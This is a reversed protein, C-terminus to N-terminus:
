EEKKRESLVLVYVVAGAGGVSMLATKWSQKLSFSVAICTVGVLFLSWRAYGNM